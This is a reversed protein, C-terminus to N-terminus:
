FYGPVGYKPAAWCRRRLARSYHSKSYMKKELKKLTQGLTKLAQGSIKLRSHTVLTHHLPLFDSLSLDRFVLSHQKVLTSLCARVDIQTFLISNIARHWEIKVLPPSPEGPLTKSTSWARTEWVRRSWPIGQRCCKAGKYRPIVYVLTCLPM